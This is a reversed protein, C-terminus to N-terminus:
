DNWMEDEYLNNDIDKSLTSVLRLDDVMMQWLINRNINLTSSLSALFTWSAKAVPSFFSIYLSIIFSVLWLWKLLFPLCIRQQLHEKSTYM